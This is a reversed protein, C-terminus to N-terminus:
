RDFCAFAGFRRKAEAAYVAAAEEPTPFRGLNHTKGGQKLKAAFLGRQRDYTVGKPWLGRAKVNQMNQAHTAERLNAWRNDDPVGNRHDIEAVSGGTVWKWIVHHEAYLVQRIRVRRSGDPCLCGARTGVDRCNTAYPADDRWRWTLWGTAPDYDFAARLEAQDPLPKAKM